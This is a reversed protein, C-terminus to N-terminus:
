YFLCIIFMNGQFFV